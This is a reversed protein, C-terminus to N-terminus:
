PCSHVLSELQPTQLELQQSKVVPSTRDVTAEEVEVHELIDEFGYQANSSLLFM